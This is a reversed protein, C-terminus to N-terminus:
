CRRELVREEVRCQEEFFSVKMYEVNWGALQLADEKEHGLSGQRIAPSETDCSYVGQNTYMSWKFGKERAAESLPAIGDPFKELDYTISGNAQLDYAQWGCDVQFFKYGAELFGKDVLADLTELVHTQNPSCGVTNYTNYGMVPTRGFGNDLAHTGAALLLASITYSLAM